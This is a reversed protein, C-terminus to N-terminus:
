RVYNPSTGVVSNKRDATKTDLFDLLFSFYYAFIFLLLVEVYAQRPETLRMGNLSVYEFEVDSMEQLNRIVATVTATKGTGPVGSIYM